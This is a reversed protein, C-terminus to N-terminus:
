ESGVEADLAGVTGGFESRGGWHGHHVAVLDGEVGLGAGAALDSSAEGGASRGAAVAQEEVELVVPGDVRGCEGEVLAGDGAGRVHLVSGSSRCWWGRRRWSSRGRCRRCSRRTM